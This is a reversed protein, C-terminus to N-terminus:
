DPRNPDLEGDVPLLCYYCLSTLPCCLIEFLMANPAVIYLLLSPLQRYQPVNARDREQIPRLARSSPSRARACRVQLFDPFVVWTWNQGFNPSKLVYKKPAGELQHTAEIDSARVDRLEGHPMRILFKDEEGEEDNEDGQGEQEQGKEQQTTAEDTKGDWKMVTYVTGDPESRSGEKKAYVVVSDHAVASQPLTFRSAFKGGQSSYAINHYHVMVMHNSKGFGYAAGGEGIYGVTKDCQVKSGPGNWDNCTTAPWNAGSNWSAIPAWDWVTMVIYNKDPSGEGESVAIRIAINNSMNGNACILTTNPDSGPPKIYLGQDSPFAVNEGAFDVEIRQYDEPIRDHAGSGDSVTMNLQYPQWSQGKDLSRYAGAEAGTYWWGQRDIAVYFAGPIKATAHATKGADNSEFVQWGSSNTFLLHTKDTPDIAAIACSLATDTFTAATPSTIAALVVHGGLCGCAVTNPGNDAVSLPTHWDGHPSKVMSWTGGKLPVNALGQSTAVLVYKEGGITGLRFTHAQGFAQTEKLMTWTAAGDTSEYIGSPGGCLVHQGADATAVDPASPYVFLGQVRTDFLGTSAQVWTMGKDTTKMVGSSAGNNQGGTYILSPNEAPSVATALTGSQGRGHIDDFINRPGIREWPSGNARASPVLQVGLGVIVFVRASM